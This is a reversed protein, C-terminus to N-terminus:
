VVHSKNTQAHMHTRLHIQRHHSHTHTHTHRDPQPPCCRGTKTVSRQLRKSEGWHGSFFVESVKQRIAKVHRQGPIGQRKLLPTPPANALPLLLYLLCHLAFYSILWLLGFLTILIHLLLPIRAIYTHLHSVSSSCHM